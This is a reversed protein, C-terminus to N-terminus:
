NSLFLFIKLLFFIYTHTWTDTNREKSETEVLDMTNEAPHFGNDIINAQNTNPAKHINQKAQKYKTYKTHKCHIKQKRFCMEDSLEPM